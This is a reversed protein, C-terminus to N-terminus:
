KLIENLMKYEEHHPIIKNTKILKNFKEKTVWKVAKVEEKQLTIDNIDIDAYIIYDFMFEKSNIGGNNLEEKFQGLYKIEYDDPNLGLEEELERRVAINSDEKSSIHGGVAIDWYNAYLEKEECRQQLLTKKRDISVIFLHVASHWIGKKHAERKTIVEGTKEGREDYVDVLEEM